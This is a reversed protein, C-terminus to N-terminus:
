AGSERVLVALVQRWLRALISQPSGELHVLGRVTHSLPQNISDTHMTALFQASVPVLSGQVEQRTAISGGHVSALDPYSLAATGSRLVSYLSVKIAPLLPDDPIFKGEAGSHVRSIDAQAIYGNIVWKARAGVLAIRERKSIWRGKHLLPNQEIVTGSMPARIFLESSETELGQAKTKLSMLERKLVLTEARDHQDAMRRSLRLEIERMRVRTLEMERTLEPVQLVLIIEGQKIPDGQRKLVEQIKAPRSPYIQKVDDATLLAPIEVRTSWPFALLAFLAIFVAVSVFTRKRAFIEKRMAIWEKIESWIPKAIFFLIEIVFLIIGLVKFFFTYVLLAIGIFLLLRYVWTAWAYVILIKHLRPPFVEPVPAKLNFLVERLHWRALAFARPQLHEVKLYDSLLYYGDFRMFPNLNIALSMIWGVTAIAFALSKLPGEPLFAWTFTAIAALSLELLIGAADIHLRQNNNKLRWSDTVDTYLLPTLLMFAIGLSAVRCGYNVCVYAHALEHLAKVLGLAIAFTIVGEITFAHQFTTLFADWQRSVLYLGTVGLVIVLFAATRSMFPRALPLTAELFRQPRFIPIKFFLYSHVLRSAVKKRSRERRQALARWDGDQTHDLLESRELFSLVRKIAGRDMSLSFSDWAKRKWDELSASQNLLSILEFTSRDIQIFRHRLPDYILRDASGGRAVKNDVLELDDRLRPLPQEPQQAQQAQQAQATM